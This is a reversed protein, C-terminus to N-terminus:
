PKIAEAVSKYITSITNLQDKYEEMVKDLDDKFRSKIEDKCDDLVEEKIESIDIRGIKEKLTNKVDHRCNRFESDVVEQAKSSIQLKSNSLVKDSIDVVAKNVASSVKRNMAEDILEKPVSIDEIGDEVKKILSKYLKKYDHVDIMSKLSFIIAAGAVSFLGYMMTKKNM